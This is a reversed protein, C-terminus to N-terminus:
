EGSADGETEPIEEPKPGIILAMYEVAMEKAQNFGTDFVLEQMEELTVKEGAAKAGIYLIEPVNVITFSWKPDYSLGMSVMMAEMAAERSIRLPDEIQDAIEMSAEFTAVLKVKRGDLEITISRM